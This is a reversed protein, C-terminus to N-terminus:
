YSPNLHKPILLSSLFRAFISPCQFCLHSSWSCVLLFHPAPPPPVFSVTASILFAKSPSMLVSLFSDSSKFIPRCFNRKNFLLSFFLNFFYWVIVIPCYWFTYPIYFKFLLPYSLSHFLVIEAVILLQFSGVNILFLM